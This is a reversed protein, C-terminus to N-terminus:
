SQFYKVSYTIFAATLELMQLCVNLRCLKPCRLARIHKGLNMVVGTSVPHHLRCMVAETLVILSRALDALMFTNLHFFKVTAQVLGNGFSQGRSM